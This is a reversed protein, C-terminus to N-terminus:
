KGGEMAPTEFTASASWIVWDAEPKEDEGAPAAKCFEVRWVGAASISLNAFASQNVAIERTAGSAVHTALMRVNGCKDGDAYLRLPLDGGVPLCTPDALPRIEAKQGSKGTAVESPAAEGNAARVLLKTSEIRRVRFTQDAPVGALPQLADAPAHAELFTRLAAATVTEIRPKFDIGIMQVGGHALDIRATDGGARQPELTDRNEQSGHARVFLWRINDAPWAHPM